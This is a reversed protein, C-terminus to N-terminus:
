RICEARNEQEGLFIFSRRRKQQNAVMDLGKEIEFEKGHGRRSAVDVCRASGRRGKWGDIAVMENWQDMEVLM